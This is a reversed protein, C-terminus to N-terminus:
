WNCLPVLGDCGDNGPYSEQADDEEVLENHSVHQVNEGMKFLMVVLGILVERKGELICKTHEECSGQHGNHNLGELEVIVVLM